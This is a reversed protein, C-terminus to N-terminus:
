FFVRQPLINAANKATGTAIEFITEAISKPTKDVIVIDEPELMVDKQNGDAIEKFNVTIIEREKSGPKLRRITIEKEKARDRFGGSKAIAESLSLGNQNIKIERIANVEGIVYVPPAKEVIILDGPYIRPNSEPQAAQISSLSYSRSPVELGDISEAIWDDENDEPACMPTQTRFVKVFGGANEINVGGTFALLELLTAPKQLEVRSPNRVEGFVTVPTPKRRETVQVSVLPDKLYKSLKERVEDRIDNETRCKAQITDEVYPIAFSGTEDILAVFNFDPEGLVKGELKDGPGVLYGQLEVGPISDPSQAAISLASALALVLVTLRSRIM